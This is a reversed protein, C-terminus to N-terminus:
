PFNHSTLTKELAVGAAKQGAPAVVSWTFLGDQLMKTAYLIMMSGGRVTKKGAKVSQHKVRCSVRSSFDSLSSLSRCQIGHLQTNWDIVETSNEAGDRTILTLNCQEWSYNKQANQLQPTAWLKQWCINNIWRKTGMNWHLWAHFPHHHLQGAPPPKQLQEWAWCSSKEGSTHRMSKTHAKNMKTCPGACMVFLNGKCPAQACLLPLM